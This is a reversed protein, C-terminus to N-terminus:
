LILPLNPYKRNEICGIEVKPVVCFIKANTNWLIVAKHFTYM